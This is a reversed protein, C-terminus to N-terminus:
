SKEQCPPITRHVVPIFWPAPNQARRRIMGAWPISVLEPEPKHQHQRPPAKRAGPKAAAREPGAWFLAICRDFELSLLSGSFSGPLHGRSVRNEGRRSIPPVKTM